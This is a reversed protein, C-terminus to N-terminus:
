APRRQGAAERPEIFGQQVTVGECVIRWAPRGDFLGEEYRYELVDRVVASPRVPEPSLRPRFASREIPLKLVPYKGFDFSGRRNRWVNRIVKEREPDAEMM